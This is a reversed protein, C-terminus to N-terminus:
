FNTMCRVTESTTSGGSGRATCKVYYDTGATLGSIRAIIMKGSITASVSKSPSSTGYYVKASSVDGDYIRYQIKLSTKTATYDYFGIEPADETNSGGGSNGGSNNGSGSDDATFYYLYYGDYYEYEGTIPGGMTIKKLILNSSSISYISCGEFCSTVFGGACLIYGCDFASYRNWLYESATYIIMGDANAYWFNGEDYTGNVYLKYRHPSYENSSEYYYEDSFRIVMGFPAGDKDSSTTCIDELNYDADYEEFKEFRWTTNMLGTAKCYRELEEIEKTTTDEPQSPDDNKVVPDDPCATCLVAIVAISLFKLLKM